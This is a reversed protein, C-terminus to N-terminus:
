EDTEASLSETKKDLIMAILVNITHAEGGGVIQKAVDLAWVRVPRQPRERTRKYYLASLVILFLLFQISLAFPGSILRCPEM